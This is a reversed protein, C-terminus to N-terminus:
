IHPVKIQHSYLVVSMILFDVYSRHTPCYIVNGKNSENLDKIMKVDNKNVVINEYMNRFAKYVGYGLVRMKIFSLRTAMRDLMERGRKYQGKFLKAEKLNSTVLERDVAERIALKVQDSNL